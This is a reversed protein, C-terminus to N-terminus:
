AQKAGMISREELQSGQGEAEEEAERAAGHLTQRYTDTHLDSQERRKKVGRM